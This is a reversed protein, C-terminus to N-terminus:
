TTNRLQTTGWHRSRTLGVITNTAWKEVTLAGPQVLEKAMAEQLAAREIGEGIMRAALLIGAILSLAAFCGLPGIHAKGKIGGWLRHGGSLTQPLSLTPAPLDFDLPSSNSVQTAVLM